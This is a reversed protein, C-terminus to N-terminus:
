KIFSKLVRITQQLRELYAYHTCNEYVVVGSDPILKELAYADSIAVAEDKTGWILLTPVRIKKAHETLDTNVHKVLIERMIPNANKYDTSGIKNKMIQAIWKLGPIKKLMKYVRVKLPQKKYKVRYPSALLVVRKVEYLSAYLIALKGGFSHGVINPKEIKLSSLLAHLMSVYDILEWAEKPKESEGFGPLDLIIVRNTDRFPNAIPEMMEINQGWGHLYLITEKDLQQNDVYNVHIGKYYFMYMVWYMMHKYFAM